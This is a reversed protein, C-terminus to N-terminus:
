LLKLVKHMVVPCLKPHHLRTGLNLVIKNGIKSHLAQVFNFHHWYIQEKALHYTYFHYSNNKIYDLHNFINNRINKSLGPAQFTYIKDVAFSLRAIFIQALYGGLSHGVLTIKRFQFQSKIKKYFSCLSLYQAKPIKHNLILFDSWIDGFDFKIPRLDSGAIALIFEQTNKDQFLSARFGGKSESFNENIHALLVFNKIFYFAIFPDFKGIAIGNEYSSNTLVKFLEKQKIQYFM